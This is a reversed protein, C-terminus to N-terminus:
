ESLEAPTGSQMTKQETQLGSSKEENEARGLLFVERAAKLKADDLANAQMVCTIIRNVEVDSFGADRLEQDWNTWTKPNDLQVTEWEIDSPLLSQLVLYAFRQNSHHSVKQLYTEDNLEPVFGDKTLKGSPKPEPCLKEFESMSTVARAKIVIDQELRPLVLIEENPGKVEVGGIRM